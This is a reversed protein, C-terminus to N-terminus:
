DDKNYLPIHLSSTLFDDPPPFSANFVNCTATVCFSAAISKSLNDRPHLQQWQKSRWLLIVPLHQTIRRESSEHQFELFLTKREKRPNEERM